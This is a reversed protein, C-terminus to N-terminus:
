VGGYLLQTLVDKLGLSIMEWKETGVHKQNVEIEIGIYDKAPFKTRLYSTFGDDIGKYPENLRITLFPLTQELADYLRNTFDSESPRDPDYLLGMDLERVKGDLVPTFTHISLHVAPKSMKTLVEEVGNRYPYYYGNLMQEHHTEFLMRSYESYLQHSDLSRNPEILLRTTECCFFPANCEAALFKAMELAGPDWGRHSQLVDQLNEFIHAFTEPVQNGAHECTVIINM